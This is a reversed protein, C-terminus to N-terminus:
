VDAGVSRGALLALEAAAARGRTALRGALDAMLAPRRHGTHQQHEVVVPATAAARREVVLQEAAVAVVVEGTAAARVDEPAVHPGSVVGRPLVVHQEAAWAVVPDVGAMPPVEDAAAGAVVADPRVERDACPDVRPRAVIVDPGLVAAARDVAARPAIDDAHRQAAVAEVATLGDLVVAREAVVPM